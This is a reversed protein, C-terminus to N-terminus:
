KSDDGKGWYMVVANFGHSFRCGDIRTIFETQGSADIVEPKMAATATQPFKKLEEILEAVTM